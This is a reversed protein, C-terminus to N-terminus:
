DGDADVFDVKVNLAQFMDVKMLVVNQQLQDYTVLLAENKTSIQQGFNNDLAEAVTYVNGFQQNIQAGIDEGDKNASLYQLYSKFGDGEQNSAFHKGNFFDQTATLAEIFLPKSAYGAYRGEVTEPLPTGSFVGAPIGVKGARLSKEYYFLYDNALKNFSSTASSGTNNVFTDRYSSDWDTVVQRTLDVLRNVVGTLYTRYAPGTAEDAFRAIVAADGGSFLLYDLAPFGQEDNKSPLDLTFNETRINEEIAAADTPFINTTNRLGIEEAKGIEYMEVHQWALYAELWADRLTALPTGEPTGTFAQTATQLQELQGLYSQYAPIIINDAWHTLMAQRDFGDQDAAENSGPEDDTSCATILLVFAFVSFFKKM